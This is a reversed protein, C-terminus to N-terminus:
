IEEADESFTAFNDAKGKPMAFTVFKGHAVAPVVLAQQVTPVVALRGFDGREVVDALGATIVYPYEEPVKARPTLRKQVKFLKLNYFRATADLTLDLGELCEPGDFLKHVPILFRRADDDQRKKDLHMVRAKDGRVPAALWASFRVPIVRFNNPNNEDEPWFGRVDPLYKPRATGIRAMGTRSFAIDAHAREVADSAQRYEHAFVAVMLKGGSAQVLSALRPPELGFVANEVVELEALTPFGRLVASHGDRTVCPSALAHYLLSQSPKGLTIAQRGAPDFDEFGPHRRDIDTIPKLLAAKLKAASTQKIDLADHTVKGLLDQWGLPALRDCILKLEDLLAM